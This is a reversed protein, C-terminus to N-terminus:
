ALRGSDRVTAQHDAFRWDQCCHDLRKEKEAALCHRSTHLALQFLLKAHMEPSLLCLLAPASVLCDAKLM